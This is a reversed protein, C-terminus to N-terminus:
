NELVKSWIRFPMLLRFTADLIPETGICNLFYMLAESSLFGTYIVDDIEPNISMKKSFM